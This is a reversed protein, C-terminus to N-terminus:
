AKSITHHLEINNKFKNKSSGHVLSWIQADRIVQTLTSLLVALEWQPKQVIVWDQQTEENVDNLYSGNM